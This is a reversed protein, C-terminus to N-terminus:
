LLQAFSGALGSLVTAASWLLVGTGVLFRRPWRDGIVGTIPSALAYVIMFMSAIVGTAADGLHFDAQLLPVVASIVNRDIYNLFNVGFLLALAFTARRESTTM